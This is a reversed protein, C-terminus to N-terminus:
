KQPQPPRTQGPQAPPRPAPQPPAAGRVPHAADYLRVIDQTIDVQQAAYIVPGQGSVDLIVTYNNERAYREIVEVLKGGIRNLVEGEAERLDEQLDEQKRQFVRNLQEIQRGIRAKEEESGTQGLTRLRNQLDEGQKRLNELETQRPAFQSQLEASAQKGEATNVIATRVNIIGVKAPGAAPQAAQSPAAGTQGQAWGASALLLIALVTATHKAKM